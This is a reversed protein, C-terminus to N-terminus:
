DLSAVRARSPAPRRTVVQRLPDCATRNGDVFRQRDGSLDGLREFGRVLLADNVAIQFGRVDLDAGVSRDLHQIEPQRLRDVDSAPAASAIFEGVNVDGAIVCIPTIRPVAAYIAGSCAFPLGTSLRASM